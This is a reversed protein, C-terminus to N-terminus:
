FPDFMEGGLLYNINNVLSRTSILQGLLLTLYTALINTLPSAWEPLSKFKKCSGYGWIELLRM